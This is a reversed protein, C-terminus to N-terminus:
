SSSDASTLSSLQANMKNIYTELKSYKTYLNDEVTDLRTKEDDIQTTCKNISTTLANDTDSADNVIGAKELLAGKNGATDRISSISKQLADYFRYAVGEEKYRTTLDKSSLSRVVTTGGLSKGTSTKSSSQQTFLNMIGEPDSAIAAKLTTENVSLKGKTDYSGTTIGISFLTSSQGSVSDILSTRLDSVFGKLTSDSALLGVKGKKEWSTIEDDTMDAKQDDNLPPYDSDYKASLETNITSILTNYDDVFGKLLDYVGDTDQTVSVAAAETTTQNATYTIGAVTITNSSRVLSQGDVTVKADMGATSTGFLVSLFNSNSTNTSDSSEKVVLTSGAGTDDATMALKGTLKDYKMTVGADSKNVKSIMEALTDAKDFTLTTGNITLAAQGDDNFTLATSLQSSITSLTASTDLRNALVATTGFGLSTLASTSTSATPASITIAQVGSNAATLSLAGSSLATVTVKGAGVATDIAAQLTALSTVTADLTVTKNTGDLNIIFSKGSLSDYTPLRSGQVDKSVSASSALTAATALQDVQITHNGAATTASTYTATVASDDSAVTYKLYNSSSLLSSSSTVDFYKSSFTQIDSTIDRYATQTWEVKQEKQELKNLKKAKEATMSQKVISDVDLGSSLGTVRTTGNVTSTSVSSSSSSM